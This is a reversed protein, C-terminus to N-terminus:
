QNASPALPEDDVFVAAPENLRVIDAEWSTSTVVTSSVHAMKAKRSQSLEVLKQMEQVDAYSPVQSSPDLELRFRTDSLLRYRLGYMESTGGVLSPGDAVAQVVETLTKPLPVGLRSSAVLWAMLRTGNHTLRAKAATGTMDMFAPTMMGDTNFPGQMDATIAKRDDKGSLTDRVRSAGHAWGVIMRVNAPRMLWDVVGPSQGPQPLFDLDLAAEGWRVVDEQRPILSLLTEGLLGDSVSGIAPPPEKCWRTLDTGSLRGKLALRLYIDDRMADYALALMSAMMTYSGRNLAATFTDIKLLVPHPDAATDAQRGLARILYRPETQIPACAELLDGARQFRRDRYDAALWGAGTLTAGPAELDPLLRELAQLVRLDTAMVAPSPERATISRASSTPETLNQDIALWAWPKSTGANTLWSRIRAQRAEDVAPLRAILAEVSLYRHTGPGHPFEVDRQSPPLRAVLAPLLDAPVDAAIVARVILVTVAALIMIGVFSAAVLTPWAVWWSSLTAKGALSASGYIRLHAALPSWLDSPCEAASTKSALLMPLATLTVATVGHRALGHRLRSLGQALHRSITAQSLRWRVALAEQTVGFVHHELVLTRQRDDLEALCKDLHGRWAGDASDIAAPEGAATECALRPEDVQREHHARRHQRRLWDLSRRRATGHLWAALPGRIQGRQRMWAIFVEQCVDTADQPNGTLRLCTAYVLDAHARILDDDVASM